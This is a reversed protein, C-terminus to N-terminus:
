DALLRTMTSRFQEAIREESEHRGDEIVHDGAVFVDRVLNQGGAFIYTDLVEDGIKGALIPATGDLVVIDARAGAEIRGAQHGLAKAGTEAAHGYLSAGTSQQLGPRLLNRKRHRLRQGYELLRLEEAANVAVHSDSGIGFRGGETLFETAPFIGDGLDAETTPCLGAIASARALGSTEEPTMHTAHVLCWRNNVEANALLWQIPRAGCWAVCEDVERTQEAIHIHIPAEASVANIMEVAEALTEPSVARLSHPAIGIRFRDGGQSAKAANELIRGYLKLDTVYRKQGQEPPVGGFGGQAYLVPLLTLAIGARGAASAVRHSMEAPDAFPTGDPAHHLYHFEGVATYGGKLLDIYLQAAIIEVDEPTLHPVFRYVAQRWSWFDDGDPGGSETLGVMARQFAHSHLNPLGPLVPGNAKPYRDELVTPRVAKLVGGSGFELTMNQAWGSPLRVDSCILGSVAKM